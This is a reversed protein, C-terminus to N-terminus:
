FIKLPNVKPILGIHPNNGKTALCEDLRPSFFYVRQVIRHFPVSYIISPRLYRLPVELVFSLRAPSTLTGKHQFDWQTIQTGAYDYETGPM